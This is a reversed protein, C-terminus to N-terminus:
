RSPTDHDARLRWARLRRPEHFCLPFPSIISGPCGKRGKVSCLLRRARRALPTAPM